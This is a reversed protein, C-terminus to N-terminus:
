RELPDLLETADRMITLDSSQHKQGAVCRERKAQYGARFRVQTEMSPIWTSGSLDARPCSGPLFSAILSCQRTWTERVSSLNPLCLIITIGTLIFHVGHFSAKSNIAATSLRNSLTPLPSSLPVCRTSISYTAKNSPEVVPPVPQKSWTTFYVRV